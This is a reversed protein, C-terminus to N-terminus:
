KKPSPGLNDSVAEFHLRVSVLTNAAIKEVRRVELKIPLLYGKAKTDYWISTQWKSKRIQASTKLRGWGEESCGHRSRIKKSLIKPLTM